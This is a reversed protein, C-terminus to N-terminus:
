SCGARSTGSKMSWPVRAERAGARAVGISRTPSRRLSSNTPSKTIAKSVPVIGRGDRDAPRRRTIWANMGLPPAVQYRGEQRWNAADGPDTGTFILLEGLDTVFVCKDDIGDGADISWTAGFLLKGGKTAAGSLPIINLAGGHADIGGYWANM